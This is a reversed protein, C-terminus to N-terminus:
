SRTGKKKFINLIIQEEAIQRNLEILHSDTENLKNRISEIEEKTMPKIQTKLDAIFSDIDFMVDNM